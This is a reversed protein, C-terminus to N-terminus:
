QKKSEQHEHEHHYLVREGYLHKLNEPTLVHHPTGHCVIQNNLCLVSTSHSYVLSLDHSVLILTLGKEDQLRHVTDYIQEERPLDIGATPEDFLLVNPEGILAFAILGRQLQGSSLAGLKEDLIEPTLHVLSLLELVKKRNVKLHAAKAFLFDGLTLPLGRELDIRQPVYGLRVDARWTIEGSYPLAGILSRLLVSKGAGNPGIIALSEKEPVDFSIDSIVKKSGFSVSVDKVTLISNM